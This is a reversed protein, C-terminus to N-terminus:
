DQENKVKKFDLFIYLCYLFIGSCIMVDFANFIPFDIFNLKIYDEVHKYLLREIANGLTGASFLILSFLKIREQYTVNKYVQYAVFLVILIGLIALIYSQNQFLGFASGTNDIHTISFFFNEMNSIMPFNSVERIQNGFDVLILSMLFYLLCAKKDKM